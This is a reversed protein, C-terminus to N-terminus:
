STKKRYCDYSCIDPNDHDCYPGEDKPPVEESPVLPAALIHSGANPKVELRANM